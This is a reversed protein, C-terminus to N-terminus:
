SIGLAAKCYDIHKLLREIIALNPLEQTWQLAIQRRALDIEELLGLRQPASLVAVDM